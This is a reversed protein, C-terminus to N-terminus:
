DARSSPRSRAHAEKLKVLSVQAYVQTSQLSAHGLQEQVYRIDAGNELMHTACAHAFLHCGGTKELGAKLAIRKVLASLYELRWPKGKDGLFLLTEPSEPTAEVTM